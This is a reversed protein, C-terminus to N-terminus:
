RAQAIASNRDAISTWTEKISVASGQRVMGMGRVVVREGVALGKRIEVLGDSRLGIEVARLLARNDDGVLTLFHKNQKQTVSEEPVALVDRSRGKVVIQMLMGPILKGSKNDIEARLLMSRTTPDIRSDMATLLGSFIEGDLTGSSAQIVTGVTLGNLQTSPVTFDVKIKDTADLTTIVTGPQIMAGPSVRRIGLRGSFPAKLTLEEIRARIEQVSSETVIQLTKREDLTRRAAAKRALLNELRKIERQHESLQAQTSALQAQEAKQEMRVLLDGKKVQQGDEFLIEFVRGTVRSTITVSEDAQATGMAEVRNSLTVQHAAFLAVPTAGRPGRKVGQDSCASILLTAILLTLFQFPILSKSLSQTKSKM